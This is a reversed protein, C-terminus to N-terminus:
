LIFSFIGLLMPSNLVGSPTISTVLVPFSMVKTEYPEVQLITSLAAFSSSFNPIEHSTISMCDITGNSKFQSITSDTFFVLLNSTTSSSTGPPALAYM